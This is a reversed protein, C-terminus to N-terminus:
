SSKLLYNLDVSIGIKSNNIFKSCFNLSSSEIIKEFSTFIPFAKKKYLLNNIDLAIPQYQQDTFLPLATFIAKIQKNCYVRNIDDNFTVGESLHTNFACKVKLRRYASKAHIAKFANM